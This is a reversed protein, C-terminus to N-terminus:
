SVSLPERVRRAEAESATVWPAWFGGNYAAVSCAAQLDQPGRQPSFATANAAATLAKLRKLVDSYTSDQAINLHETPDTSLNFLCGDACDKSLTKNTGWDTSTANPSSPGQWGDQPVLQQQLYKYVTGDADTLLMGTAVTTDDPATCWPDIGVPMNPVSGDHNGSCDGIALTTRAPAKAAGCWYKWQSVSFPPTCTYALATTAAAHAVIYASSDIPPLRVKKAKADTPDVQALEAFTALWDWPAVLGSLKIGRRPAPLFGGSVFGNVRIGGEWNSQSSPAGATSPM